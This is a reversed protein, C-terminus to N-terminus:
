EVKEILCAEFTKIDIEIDKGAKIADAIEGKNVNFKRYKVMKSELKTGSVQYVEKGDKQALVASVKDTTTREASLLSAQKTTDEWEAKSIKVSYPGEFDKHLQEELLKAESFKYGPVKVIIFVSDPASPEKCVGDDFVCVIDGPQPRANFSRRAGESMADIQKQTFGDMWHGDARVLFEAM